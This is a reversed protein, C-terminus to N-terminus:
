LVKLSKNQHLGPRKTALFDVQNQQILEDIDQLRFYRRSQIKVSKIKGQKLWDYVTPKSVHFLECVEKVKVLSRESHKGAVKLQSENMVQEVIEKMKQWFVSPEIPLLMQVNEM